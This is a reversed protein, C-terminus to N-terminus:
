DFRMTKLQSLLCNLLPKHTTDTHRKFPEGLWDSCLKLNVLRDSFRMKYCSGSNFKQIFIQLCFLESCLYISFILNWNWPMIRVNPMLIGPQTEIGHCDAHAPAQQHSHLPSFPYLSSTSCISGYQELQEVILLPLPFHHACHSCNLLNKNQDLRKIQESWEHCQPWSKCNCNVRINNRHARPDGQAGARCEAWWLRSIKFRAMIQSWPGASNGARQNTLATVVRGRIPWILPPWLFHCRPLVSM